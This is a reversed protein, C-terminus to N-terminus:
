GSSSRFEFRIATNRSKRIWCTDSVRNQSDGMRLLGALDPKRLRFNHKKLVNFGQARRM